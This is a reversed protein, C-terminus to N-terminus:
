MAQQRKDRRAGRSALGGRWRAAPRFECASVASGPQASLIRVELHRKQGDSQFVQRIPTFAALTTPGKEPLQHSNPSDDEPLEFGRLEALSDVKWGAALV